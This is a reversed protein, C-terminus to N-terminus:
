TPRPEPQGQRRAHVPATAAPARTRHRPPPRSRDTGWSSLSPAPRGEPAPQHVPGAAIPPGPGRARRPHHSEATAPRYVGSHDTPASRPTRRRTTASEVLAGVITRRRHHAACGGPRHSSGSSWVAWVTTWVAWSAQRVGASGS